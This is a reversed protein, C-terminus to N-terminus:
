PGVSGWAGMTSRVQVLLRLVAGEAPDPMNVNFRMQTPQTAPWFLETMSGSTLTGAYWGKPTVLPCPDFISGYAVSTRWTSNDSIYIGNWKPDEIRTIQLGGLNQHGADNGALIVRTRHSPLYQRSDLM